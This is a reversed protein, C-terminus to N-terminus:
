GMRIIQSKWIAKALIKLSRNERLSESTESFVLHKELVGSQRPFGKTAKEAVFSQLLFRSNGKRFFWQGNPEFSAFYNKSFILLSKRFRPLRM